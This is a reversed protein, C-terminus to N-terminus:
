WGFTSEVKMQWFNAGGFNLVICYYEALIMLFKNFFLEDAAPPQVGLGRCRPHLVSPFVRDFDQTSGAVININENINLIFYNYTGM